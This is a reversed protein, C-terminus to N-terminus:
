FVGSKTAVTPDQKSICRLTVFPLSGAMFAGILQLAARCADLVFIKVRISRFQASAGSRETHRYLEMALATKKKNNRLLSENPSPVM